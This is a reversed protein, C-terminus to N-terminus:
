VYLSKALAAVRNVLTNDGSGLWRKTAVRVVAVIGNGATGGGGGGGRGVVLRPFPVVETMFDVVLNFMCDVCETFIFGVICESLIVEDLRLTSVILQM